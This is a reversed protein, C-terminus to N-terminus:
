DGANVRLEIQALRVRLSSDQGNAARAAFVANDNLAVRKGLYCCKDGLAVTIRHARGCATLAGDQRVSCAIHEFRLLGLPQLHNEDM